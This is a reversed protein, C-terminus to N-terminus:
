ESLNFLVIAWQHLMRHSSLQMDTMFEAYLKFLKMHLSLNVFDNMYKRFMELYRLYRGVKRWPQHNSEKHICDIRRELYCYKCWSCFHFWTKALMRGSRAYSRNGESMQLSFELPLLSSLLGFRYSGQCNIISLM